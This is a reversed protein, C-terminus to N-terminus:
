TKGGAFFLLGNVVALLFASIATSINHDKLDVIGLTVYVLILGIILATRM